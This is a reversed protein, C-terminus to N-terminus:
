SELSELAALAQALRSAGATGKDLTWRPRKVAREEHRKRAQRTHESERKRRAVKVAQSQPSKRKGSGPETWRGKGQMGQAPIRYARCRQVSLRSAIWGAPYLEGTVPDTCMVPRTRFEFGGERAIRRWDVTVRDIPM